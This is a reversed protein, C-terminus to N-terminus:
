ARAMLSLFYYSVHSNQRTHKLPGRFRPGKKISGFSIFIARRPVSRRGRIGGRRPFASNFACPEQASWFWWAPPHGSGLRCLSRSSRPSNPRDLGNGPPSLIASTCGDGCGPWRSDVPPLGEVDPAPPIGMRVSAPRSYRRDRSRSTRPRPGIRQYFCLSAATSRPLRPAAWAMWEMRASLSKPPPPTTYDHPWPTRVGKSTISIM